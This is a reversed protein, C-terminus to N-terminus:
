LLGELLKDFAEGAVPWAFREDYLRRAGRGLRVRLSADRALERLARTVADTRPEVLMVNEGNRLGSDRDRGAYAVVPLGHALAALLSTKRGAAPGSPECFVYADASHLALSVEERELVGTSTVAGEIGPPIDTNGGRGILLLRADVGEARLRRLAEFAPGFDRGPGASGVHALVFSSEDLGFRTRMGNTGRAPDPEITASIPILSVDDRRKPFWRDLTALRSETTVVVRRSARVVAATELRQAVAWAVGRLAQRGWPFWLEHAVLVLPAHRAMTRAIRRASPGIGKRGITFPNYQWLIADPHADALAADIVGVTKANFAPIVPRVDIDARADAPPSCLVVVEHARAALEQALLGTHDGIGGVAPPMDRSIIALRM